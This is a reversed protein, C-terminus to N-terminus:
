VSQFRAILRDPPLDVMRYIHLESDDPWVAAPHLGHLRSRNWWPVLREREKFYRQISRNHEALEERHPEALKTLLKIVEITFQRRVELDGRLEDSWENWGQWLLGEEQSFGVLERNLRGTYLEDEGLISLNYPIPSDCPYGKEGPLERIVLIPYPKEQNFQPSPPPAFISLKFSVDAEPHDMSLAIDFADLEPFLSRHPQLLDLFAEQGITKPGIDDVGTTFGVRLFVSEVSDIERGPALTELLKKAHEYPTVPEKRIEGSMLRQGVRRLAAGIEAVAPMDTSIILNALNNTM